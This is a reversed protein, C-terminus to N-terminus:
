YLDESFLEDSSYNLKGGNDIFLKASQVRDLFRGKSTLFGQVYEGMEYQKKGLLAGSQGIIYPHRWGCLVVGNTVNKVRYVPEVNPLDKYWIAACIIREVIEKTM